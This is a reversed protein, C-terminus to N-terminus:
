GNSLIGAMTGIRRWTEVCGISGTMILERVHNPAFYKWAAGPIPSHTGAYSRGAPSRIALRTGFRVDWQGVPPPVTVRDGRRPSVCSDRGLRFRGRDAGRSARVHEQRGQRARHRAM